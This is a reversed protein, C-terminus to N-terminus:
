AVREELGAMYARIWTELQRKTGYGDKSIVTCGGGDTCIRELQVGGYAGSIYYNGINAKLGKDTRTYSETPSGTMKNLHLVLAELQKHTTRNM